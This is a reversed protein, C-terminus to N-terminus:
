LNEIIERFQIGTEALKNIYKTVEELADPTLSGIVKYPTKSLNFYYLQDCKVFSNIVNGGNSSSIKQKEFPIGINGIYSLKRQAQIDNKISSMVLAVIDFTLGGIEGGEVDFVVFPHRPLTISNDMYSYIVIIDGRKCM